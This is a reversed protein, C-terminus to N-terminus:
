HSQVKELWTYVIIGLSPPISRFVHTRRWVYSKAARSAGIAKCDGFCSQSRSKRIYTSSELWLVITIKSSKPHLDPENSAEYAMLLIVTLLTGTSRSQKRCSLARQLSKLVNIYIKHGAFVLRLDGAARGFYTTSTSRFAEHLIPSSIRVGAAVRILDSSGYFCQVVPAFGDLFQELFM